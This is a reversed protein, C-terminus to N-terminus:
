EIGEEFKGDEIEEEYLGYADKINRYLDMSDYPNDSIRQFEQMRILENKVLSYDFEIEEKSLYSVEEIDHPITVFDFITAKEKGPSLRLVRGRRQIYEKPNTTSALIFATKIAPINVGEDLCRIAVLVQLQSGEAFEQQLLERTAINEKSTFQSAKIGFDNKLMMTVEDIQRISDDLGEDIGRTAGCYILIHNDTAYEAITERLADIKGSAGAVLRARKIALIEGHKNLKTRGNKDIILNQRIEQSLSNYIELEDETLTVLVPYYEYPTLKKEKIARELLYEICKDGFFRMLQDTGEEDGHRELTASLGLRYTYKETLKTIYSKAGMNHAEDVVLCIDERINEIVKQFKGSAFTDKTAIVCVFDRVGLSYDFLAKRIKEPFDRYKSIGYAVIPYINFVNLDEVWQEVLHTMPCIIIAVLRKKDKFLECLGGIGTYTKGTGTAMDFIGRYGNAKWAEIAQIQYDHLIVEKPIRPLNIKIEKEPIIKKEIFDAEDFEEYKIEKKYRSIIEKEVNIFDLVEVSYDDNNWLHEFADQKEIVRAAEYENKWSCYTDISEYNLYMASYTENMSGTFAIANGDADQFIGIKEHYLGCKGVIALKISLKGDIILKSLLALRNEERFNKPEYLERVVADRFVIEREKYGEEIAKVDDDSLKPSAVIRMVGGNNVFPLLGASIAILASSSFFGVARDYSKARELIPQYFDRAVNDIQSHYVNQIELEEFGM